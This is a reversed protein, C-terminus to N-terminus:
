HGCVDPPASAGTKGETVARLGTYLPPHGDPLPSLLIGSPSTSHFCRWDLHIWDAGPKVKRLPFESFARVSALVEEQPIFHGTPVMGPM